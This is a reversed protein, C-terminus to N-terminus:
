IIENGEEGHPVLVATTPSEIAEFYRELTNFMGKSYTKANSANPHKGDLLQILPYNFDPPVKRIDRTAQEDFYKFYTQIPTPDLYNGNFDMNNLIYNRTVEGGIRIEPLNSLNEEASNIIYVK